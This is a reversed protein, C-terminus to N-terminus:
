DWAGTGDEGDPQRNHQVGFSMGIALEIPCGNSPQDDCEARHEQDGPTYSLL